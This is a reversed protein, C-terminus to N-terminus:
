QILSDSTTDSHNTFVMGVLAWVDTKMKSNLLLGAARALRQGPPNGGGLGRMIRVAQLRALRKQFFNQLGSAPAFDM